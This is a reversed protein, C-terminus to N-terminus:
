LDENKTAAIKSQLAEFVMHISRLEFGPFKKYLAGM